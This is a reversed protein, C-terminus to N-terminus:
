KGLSYKLNNVIGFFYLDSSKTNNSFEYKSFTEDFNINTRFDEETLNKYYDWGKAVTLPSKRPSTRSTGHEKRGTTACTMIVLGDPKCMRYMNEFTELWYPNHEFCECSIVVDYSNSEGQFTQGECVMDVGKGEGVDLGTYDCNEFFTRVSGNIDLSGVELIKKNKFYNLYNSKISNVYEIQQVHSM